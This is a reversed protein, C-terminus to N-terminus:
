TVALLSPPFNILINCNFYARKQKFSSSVPIFFQLIQVYFWNSSLEGNTDANEVPWWM